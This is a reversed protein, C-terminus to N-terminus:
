AAGRCSRKPQSARSWSECPISSDDMTGPCFWQAPAVVVKNERNNLFASWWSFTSNAIVNCASHSMMIMDEHAMELGTHDIFHSPMKPRLQELCWAIDNSFVFVQVGDREEAWRELCEQYYAISLQAYLKSNASNSIYDGRRIHLSVSNCSQMREIIRMSTDSIPSRPSFHELLRSRLGPFFKESQWYGVLYCDDPTQLYKEQFGFPREKERRLVDARLWDPLPSVLGSLTTARHRRPLKARIANNLEVAQVNFRDLMYGHQPGTHYSNLDLSLPSQHKSALYLGFAYQFMQNGLGGDMRTVIM